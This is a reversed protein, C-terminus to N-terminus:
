ACCGGLVVTSPTLLQNPPKGRTPMQPWGTGTFSGRRDIWDKGNTM